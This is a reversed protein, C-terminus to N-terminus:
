KMETEADNVTLMEERRWGGAARMEREKVMRRGKGNRLDGAKGKEDGREDGRWCDTLMEEM